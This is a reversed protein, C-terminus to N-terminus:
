SLGARGAWVSIQRYHHCCDGAHQEREQATWRFLSCGAPRSTPGPKSRRSARPPIIHRGAIPWNCGAILNRANAGATRYTPLVGLFDDLRLLPLIRDRLLLVETEGVVEIRRKTEEARIRLLEEVNIQPIAFRENEASVILAPIITLTLPLKIRFLSGRGLASSIEVQGGLRDLNTKVVDMGVGRGSVDSVKAATSLGPLLILAIQDQLSMGKLQEATILGKALAAQAVRQSDIGKGDDAIEIVVQGAEHRAEVRLTGTREKGARLREAPAEIGHDIANRVMHTLPDSLGEVLSRDLAVERGRIDLKVEKGLSNSLDRVVRPLKGFVNEIPQLRTRMIADQIESTIQSLRQGASTLMRHNNQVIAAQFQNRSLVLEGALNMLTDLLGVNVRLTDEVAPLPAPSGAVPGPARSEAPAANGAPAPASLPPAAVNVAAQPEVPPPLPLSVIAPPEVAKAAEPVARLPEDPSPQFLRKIREQPIGALKDIAEPLALTAFVISLPLRKGILGDLGGVAAFDFGRGSNRGGGGTRQFASFREARGNSTM